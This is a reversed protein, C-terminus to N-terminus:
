EMAPPLPLRDATRPHSLFSLWTNVHLRLHTKEGKWGGEENM